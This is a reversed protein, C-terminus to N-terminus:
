DRKSGGDIRGPVSVVMRADRVSVGSPFSFEGTPSVTGHSGYRTM